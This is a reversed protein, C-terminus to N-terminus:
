RRSRSSRSSRCLHLEMGQAVLTGVGFAVQHDDGLTEGHVTITQPSTTTSKPSVSDVASDPKLFFSIPFTPSAPSIVDVSNNGYQPVMLWPPQTLGDFGGGAQIEAYPISQTWVPAPLVLLGVALGLRLVTELLKDSM